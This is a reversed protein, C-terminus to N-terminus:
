HTILIILIRIYIYIYKFYYINTINWEIIISNALEIIFSKKKKSLGNKVKTLTISADETDHGMRFPLMQVTACLFHGNVNLGKFIKNTM